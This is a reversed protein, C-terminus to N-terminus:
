IYNYVLPLNLFLVITGKEMPDQSFKFYKVQIYTSVYYEYM